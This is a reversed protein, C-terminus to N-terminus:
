NVQTHKGTRQITQDSKRESQKKIIKKRKDSNYMLKRCVFVSILFGYILEM